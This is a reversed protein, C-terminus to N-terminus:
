NSGGTGPAQAGAGFRPTNPGFPGRGGGFLNTFGDEPIVFVSTAELDGDDNRQGTITVQLGPELDGVTISALQQIRVTPGVVAEVTGQATSFSLTDGEVAEITGTFGQGLQARTQEAGTLGAPGLQGLQQRLLEIDEASPQEGARLLRGQIGQVLSAPDPATGVGPQTAGPAVLQTTVPTDASEAQNRGVAVGGAFSAGLGGGLVVVAIALAIFSRPNM